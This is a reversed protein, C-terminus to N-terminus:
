AIGALLLRCDWIPAAPRPDGDLNWTLRGSEKPGPGFDLLM